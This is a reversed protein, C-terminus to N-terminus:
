VLLGAVVCIRLYSESEVRGIERDTRSRLRRLRAFPNAVCPSTRFPDVGDRGSPPIKAIRV